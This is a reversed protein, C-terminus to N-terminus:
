EDALRARQWWQTFSDCLRDVPEFLRPAPRLHIDDRLLRLTDAYHPDDISHVSRAGALATRLAGINGFWRIPALERQRTGVFRWRMTSWLWQAHWEALALAVILTDKPLDAPLDNLAWPHVLWVGRDAVATDPAAFGCEDPPASLLEPEDVGDADADFSVSERSHALQDLAEYTTDIATGPCHWEVPAYRAVNEANFLYPKHSATAAVWQWSLHNSALDGDLLHAYLWDAGARWHVKRLHVVYSALWMRVHNHLYGTAYLERVARDIVPLGTRGERIDAPLESAYAVDPLLGEHLSEFIGDGHHAWVHHWYERWGFEYVLKHQPDIAHRAALCAHVEPMSLLGHSLYPSLRTVDGDLANRSRAYNAPRIADVRLLAAARTPAFDINASIAKGSDRM